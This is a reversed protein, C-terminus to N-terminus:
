PGGEVNRRFYGWNGFEDAARLELLSESEEKSLMLDFKLAERGLFDGIPSVAIWDGNPSRREINTVVSGGHDSVTGKVRLSGDRGRKLEIAFEPASGDLLAPESIASMSRATGPRNDPEDSVTVRLRYRGDPLGRGDWTYIPSDWESELLQWEEEAQERMEIRATINDLDPDLWDWQLQRLGRFRSSMEEDAIQSSHRQQYQVRVGRELLQTVPKGSLDIADDFLRDTPRLLTLNGIIPTRNLPMISVSVRDVIPNRDGKRRLTVRWQFFRAVPLDMAHVGGERECKTWKSWGPGPEPSQGARAEVLLADGRSFQGEVRVLGGRGRSGLDIVESNLTGAEAARDIRFLKAPKAQLLWLKDDQAHLDSFYAGEELALIEGRYPDTLRDLEGADGTAVLLGGQKASMLDGVFASDSSLMRELLGDQSLRHIASCNDECDEAGRAVGIFIDGGTGVHIRQVEEAAFDALLELDGDRGVRFLLGEGSTGALVGDGATDAALSFVNVDPLTAVLEGEAKALDYRYVRGGGGTAIWLADDVKLLDWIFEQDTEFLLTREGKNDIRFLQGAPGTGVAWVGRELAVLSSFMLESEAAIEKAKGKGEHLLLRNVSGGAGILLSRGDGAMKTFFATSDSLVEEWREGVRWSGDDAMILGRFSCKQYDELRAYRYHKTEVAAAGGILLALLLLALLVASIRQIM